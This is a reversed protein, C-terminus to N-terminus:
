LPFSPNHFFHYQSGIMAFCWNQFLSSFQEMYFRILIMSRSTDSDLTSLVSRISISAIKSHDEQLHRSWWQLPLDAPLLCEPVSLLFWEIRQLPCSQELSRSGEVRQSQEWWASVSGLLLSSIPSSLLKTCRCLLFVKCDAESDRLAWPWKRCENRQTVVAILVPNFLCSKSPIGCWCGICNWSFQPHRPDLWHMRYRYHSGPCREEPRCKLQAYSLLAVWSDLSFAGELSINM